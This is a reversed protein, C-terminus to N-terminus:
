GNRRLLPGISVTPLISISALFCVVWTQLSTVWNFGYVANIARPCPIMRPPHFRFTDIDHNRNCAFLRPM